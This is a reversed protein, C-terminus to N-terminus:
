SANVWLAVGVVVWLLAGFLVGYLIGRAPALPDEQQPFASEIEFILEPPTCDACAANEPCCSEDDQDYLETM